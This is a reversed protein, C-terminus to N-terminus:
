PRWTWVGAVATVAEVEVAEVDCQPLRALFCVDGREDDLGHGDRITIPGQESNLYTNGDGHLPVHLGLDRVTWSRDGQRLHVDLAGAGGVRVVSAVALDLRVCLWSADTDALAHALVLCSDADIEPWQALVGPLWGDAILGPEHAAGKGNEVVSAVRVGPAAGRGACGTLGITILIWALRRM